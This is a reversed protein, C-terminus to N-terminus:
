FAVAERLARQLLEVGSEDEEGDAFRLSLGLARTISQLSVSAGMLSAAFQLVAIESQAARHVWSSKNTVLHSVANWDIRPAGDSLDVIPRDQERHMIWSRNCPTQDVAFRRVWLGNRYDRLLQVAAREVRDEPWQVEVYQETAAPPMTEEAVSM